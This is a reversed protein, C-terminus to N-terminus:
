DSEVMKAVDKPVKIKASKYMAIALTQMASCVSNFHAESISDRKRQIEDFAAWYLPSNKGVNRRTEILEDITINEPFSVPEEAILEPPLGVNQPQLPLPTPLTSKGFPQIQPINSAGATTTQPPFSTIKTGPRGM